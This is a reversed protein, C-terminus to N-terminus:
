RQEPELVLQEGRRLFRTALAVSALLATVALGIQLSVVGEESWYVDDLELLLASEDLTLGMGAGFPVALWREIREDRTVIAAAGSAFAMAIGPVFHHIHRRGLKFDRFPGVRARSRLRITVGRAALFTAVFASLLNFMANEAPPTERYGTRAVEATEAMAEAAAQLPDDARTPLPASGRHWVRGLELAAVATLAGGALVALAVTRRDAPLVHSRPRRRARGLAASTLGVTADVAYSRGPAPRV